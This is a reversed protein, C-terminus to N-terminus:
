AAPDWPGVVHLTPPRPAGPRLPCNLYGHPHPNVRRDVGCSPGFAAACAECQMWCLDYFIDVHALEEVDVIAFCQHCRYRLDAMLPRWAM